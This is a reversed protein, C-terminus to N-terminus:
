YGGIFKRVFWEISLLALFLGFLWQLNILEKTQYSSYSIPKINESARIHRELTTLSDPYVVKGNNKTTLNYLLQHNATTQLSELLIPAISFNGNATYEKGNFSEVTNLNGNSKALGADKDQVHM